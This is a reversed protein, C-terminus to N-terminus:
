LRLGGLLREFSPDSAFKVMKALKALGVAARLEGACPPMAALAGVDEDATPDVATTYGQVSGRAVEDSLDRTSSHGM